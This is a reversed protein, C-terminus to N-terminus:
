GGLARAVTTSRQFGPLLIVSAFTLALARLVHINNSYSQKSTVHPWDSGIHGPCCGGIGIRQQSLLGLQSQAALHANDRDGYRSLCDIAVNRHEYVDGM